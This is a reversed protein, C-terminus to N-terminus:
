RGIMPAPGPGAGPLDRHDRMRERASQSARDASLLVTSTQSAVRSVAEDIRHGEASATRLTRHLLDAHVAQVGQGDAPAAERAAAASRMLAAQTRGLEMRAEELGRHLVAATHRLRSRDQQEQETRPEIAGAEQRSRTLWQQSDALGRAVRDGAAAASECREAFEVLLAWRDQAPPWQAGRQAWDVDELRTAARAIQDQLEQVGERSGALFRRSNSLAVLAQDFAGDQQEGQPESM